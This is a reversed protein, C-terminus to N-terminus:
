RQRSFSLKERHSQKKKAVIKDTGGEGKRGGSVRAQSSLDPATTLVGANGNDGALTDAHEPSASIIPVGFARLAGSTRSLVEPDGVGIMGSHPPPHLFFPSPIHFCASEWIDVLVIKKKRHVLLHMLFTPKKTKLRNVRSYFSALFLM